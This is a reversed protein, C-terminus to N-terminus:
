IKFINPSSIDSIEHVEPADPSPTVAHLSEEIRISHTSSEAKDEDQVVEDSLTSSSYKSHLVRITSATIDLTSNHDENHKGFTRDLKTWVEKPYEASGILYSLSPSLPLGIAGFARDGDNLWDNDNEYSEKGLGTSM